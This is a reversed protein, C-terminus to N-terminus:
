AQIQEVLALAQEFDSQLRLFERRDGGRDPHLEKVRQRYADLIEKKTSRGTLGLRAFPQPTKNRAWNPTAHIRQGVVILKRRLSRLYARIDLVVALYGLAPLSFVLLLYGVTVVADIQDPWTKAILLSVRSRNALPVALAM